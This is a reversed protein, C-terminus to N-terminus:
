FGLREMMKQALPESHEEEDVNDLLYDRLEEKDVDPSLPAVILPSFTKTSKILLKPNVETDEVWFSELSGYPYFKKELILGKQNVEIQLLDPDRRAFISLTIASVIVLIAFLLNNLIISTVAVSLSIIGLAWFWDPSKDTQEYEYAQWQLVYDRM